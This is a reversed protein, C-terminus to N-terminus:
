ALDSVIRFDCLQCHEFVEAKSPHDPWEGSSQLGRSRARCEQIWAARNCRARLDGGPVVSMPETTDSM